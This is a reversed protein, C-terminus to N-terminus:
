VKQEVPLEMLLHALLALNDRPWSCEQGLHHALPQPGTFSETRTSFHNYTQLLRHMEHFNKDIQETEQTEGVQEEDCM